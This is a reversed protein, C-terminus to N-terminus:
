GWFGKFIYGLRLGLAPRLTGSKGAANDLKVDTFRYYLNLTLGQPSNTNTNTQYLLGATLMPAIYLTTDSLGLDALAAATLRLPKNNKVPTIYEAGGLFEFLYFTGNVGLNSNSVTYREFQIGGTPNIGQGKGVARAGFGWAQTNSTQHNANYRVQQNLPATFYFEDASIWTFVPAAAIAAAPFAFLISLLILRMTLGPYRRPFATM